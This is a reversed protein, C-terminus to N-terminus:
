LATQKLQEILNQAFIIMKESFVGIKAVFIGRLRKNKHAAPNKEDICAAGDAHVAVGPRAGELGGVELREGCMYWLTLLEVGLDGGELKRRRDVGAGHRGGSPRVDGV